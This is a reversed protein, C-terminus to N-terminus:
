GGLWGCLGGQAVKRAREGHLMDSSFIVLVDHAEFGRPQGGRGEPSGGCQQTTRGHRTTQYKREEDEGPDGVCEEAGIRHRYM